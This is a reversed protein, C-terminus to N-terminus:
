IGNFGAASRGLKVGALYMRERIIAPDGRQLHLEYVSTGNELGKVEMGLQELRPFLENATELAKKYEALFDDLYHGAVAAFAWAMPMGGGFMRRVHYLGDTFSKPGALIAGSAANFNKYLSVYITDFHSAYASPALGSHGCANFLRAGDLHMGIGENKALAAIRAMEDFDFVRNHLRRVPSEISICGVKSSVRGSATRALVAAVDQATFNVSGPNLPILNINSLNQVTDGCDNYIHAEAQVIARKRGNCLERIAVHNALTGTPFFVAAEKGLISAFKKEMVAVAGGRSYHDSQVGENKTLQTLLGAYEAPSLYLGDYIFNVQGAAEVEMSLAAAPLIAALSGTYLVNRRDM